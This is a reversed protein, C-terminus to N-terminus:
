NKTTEVGQILMKRPVDAPNYGDKGSRSSEAAQCSERFSDAFVGLRLHRAASKRLAPDFTREPELTRTRPVRTLLISGGMGWGSLKWAGGTINDTAPNRVGMGEFRRGLMSKKAGLLLSSSM